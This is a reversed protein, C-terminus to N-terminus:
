STIEGISVIRHQQWAMPTESGLQRAIFTAFQRPVYQGSQKGLFCRCTLWHYQAFNALAVLNQKVQLNAGIQDIKGPM